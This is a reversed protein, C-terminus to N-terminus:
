ASGVSALPLRICLVGILCSTIPQLSKYDYILPNILTLECLGLKYRKKSAIVARVSAKMADFLICLNYCFPPAASKDSLVSSYDVANGTTFVLFFSHIRRLQDCRFQRIIHFHVDVSRPLLSAPYVVIVVGIRFIDGCVQQM